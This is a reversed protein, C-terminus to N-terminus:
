EFLDNLASFLEVAAVVFLLISWIEQKNLSVGAYLFKILKFIFEKKREIM